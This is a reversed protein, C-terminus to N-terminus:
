SGLYVVIDDFCPLNRRLYRLCFLSRIWDPRNFEALTTATYVSSVFTRSSRACLKMRIDPIWKTVACRRHYCMLKLLLRGGTGAKFLCCRKTWCRASGTVLRASLFLRVGPSSSSYKERCDITFIVRDAIRSM